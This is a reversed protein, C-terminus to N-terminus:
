RINQTMAKGSKLQISGIRTDPEEGKEVAEAMHLAQKYDFMELAGETPVAFQKEGDPAIFTLPQGKGGQDWSWGRQVLEDLMSFQENYCKDHEMRLKELANITENAITENRPTHPLDASLHYLPHRLHIMPQAVDETNDYAILFGLEAEVRDLAKFFYNERDRIHGIVEQDLQQFLRSFSQQEHRNDAQLNFFFHYEDPYNLNVVHLKGGEHTIKYSRRPEGNPEAFLRLVDSENKKRFEDSVAEAVWEPIPLHGAHERRQANLEKVMLCAAAARRVYQPEVPSAMPIVLGSDSVGEAGRERMIRGIQPYERHRFKVHSSEAKSPIFGYHILTERVERFRHGPATDGNIDAPNFYKAM